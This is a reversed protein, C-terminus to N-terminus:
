SKMPQWFLGSRINGVKTPFKLMMWSKKSITKLIAKTQFLFMTAMSKALLAAGVGSEGAGLIVLKKM